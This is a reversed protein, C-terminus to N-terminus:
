KKERRQIKRYYSGIGSDVRIFRHVNKPVIEASGLFLLGPNILIDHTRGIVDSRLSDSFYITVNRMLIAHFLGLSKFDNQLNFRRFSVLNRVRKDLVSINGETTFYKKRFDRWEGTFGRKMSIGDYRGTSAIALATGSIDTALISFNEPKVFNKGSNECYDMILMALSYPEQGTSCGASWIRFRKGPSKIAMKEFIPFINNRLIKWPSSDRFWSTENTTVADIIGEVLHHDHGNSAMNYFESFSSCGYSAVLGALRTEIIYRKGFPISIGCRSEIFKQMLGFESETLTLSTMVKREHIRGIM